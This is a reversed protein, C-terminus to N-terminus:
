PFCRNFHHDFHNVQQHGHSQPTRALTKQQAHTERRPAQSLLGPGGGIRIQSGPAFPVLGVIQFPPFFMPLVINLANRLASATGELFLTGLDGLPKLGYQEKIRELDARLPALLGDIAAEFLEFSGTIRRILDADDIGLQEAKL